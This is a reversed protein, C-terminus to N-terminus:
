WSQEQGARHGQKLICEEVVWEARQGHGRPARIQVLSRTNSDIVGVGNWLREKLAEREM